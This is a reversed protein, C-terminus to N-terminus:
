GFSFSCSGPSCYGVIGANSPDRAVMVPVIFLYFFAAPAAIFLVLTRLVRKRNDPIPM